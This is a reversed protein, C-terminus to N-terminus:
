KVIKSITKFQPAASERCLEFLISEYTTLTAGEDRMRKLAIKYDFASRSSICNTVVVPNFGKEILDIVTQLVCVHSEIGCVLVNKKGQAELKDMIPKDDCCSFTSKEMPKYNEGLAEQVEDITYGIGKPYQETVVMPIELAKIGEILKRTNNKLEEHGNIHPFLRSQYDIILAATEKKLIRM